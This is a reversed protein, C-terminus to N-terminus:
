TMYRKVIYSVEVSGRVHSLKQGFVHEVDLPFTVYMMM